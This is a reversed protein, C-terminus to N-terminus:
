NFKYKENTTLNYFCLEISSPKSMAKFCHCYIEKVVERGKFFSPTDGPPFFNLSADAPQLYTKMKVPPGPSANGWSQFGARDANTLLVLTVQSTDLIDLTTAHLM